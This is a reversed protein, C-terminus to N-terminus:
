LPARSDIPLFPAGGRGLCRPAVFPRKAPSKEGYASGALIGFARPPSNWHPCRGQLTITSHGIRARHLARPSRLPAVILKVAGAYQFNSDLGRWRLTLLSETGSAIEPEDVLHM